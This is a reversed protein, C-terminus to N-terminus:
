NFTWLFFLFAFYLIFYREMEKLLFIHFVFFSILSENIQKLTIALSLIQCHQFEDFSELLNIQCMCEAVKALALTQFSKSFVINWQVAM